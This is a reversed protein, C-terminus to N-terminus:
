KLLKQVVLAGVPVEWVFSKAAIFWIPQSRSPWGFASGMMATTKETIFYYAFAAGAGACHVGVASALLISFM